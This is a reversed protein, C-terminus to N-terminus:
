IIPKAMAFNLKRLKQTERAIQLSSFHNLRDACAPLTAPFNSNKLRSLKAQTFHEANILNAIKSLAKKALAKKPLNTQLNQATGWQPQM